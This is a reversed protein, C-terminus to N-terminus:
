GNIRECVYHRVPRGSRATAADSRRVGPIWVVDEGQEGVGDDRLAVVVPWGLRDLGRLGADSLYRKVRRPPQGASRALRDGAAWPRVAVRRSVPLAARWSDGGENPEGLSGSQEYEDAVRFRFDGWRVYGREPLAVSETQVVGARKLLYGAIGAELCWGGSLPVSGSRPQETTFEALRRTGRRDLALGARGAIEGWVIGLSDRDWGRLEAASVGVSAGRVVPRIRSTVFRELDRRWAAARRGCTLLTQDITADQARLAPLIDHRVRNRLHERSRNSPDELWTVGCARAYALVSTRRIAVFPRLVDSPALLAALGRAGSGRLLRMLVTEIQDDETHATVLRANIPAAVSRLFGYRERRWRAERGSRGIHPAALCGHVVTLGLMMATRAVHAAATSAARGTGHDFTAVAAIRDRAESAMAHLLVMSDLGGSVALLLPAEASRAAHRAALRVARAPDHHM